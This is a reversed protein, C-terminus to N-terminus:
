SSQPGPSRWPEDSDTERALAQELAPLAAPDRAKFVAQAAQMRRGPDAALLTLSGLAADVSRRLRNNLRVPKLSSAEASAEAGSRADRLTGSSDRYLVARDGPSYFLRGASLAELVAEATPHGSQALEDIAKQTEDFRDASLRSLTTEPSQARSSPPMACLAVLTLIALGAARLLGM